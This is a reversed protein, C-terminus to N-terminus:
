PTAGMTRVAMPGRHNFDQKLIEDFIEDRRLKFFAAREDNQAFAEAECLSGFLYADPHNNFLWNLSGSAALDKKVYLISLSTDDVPRVLVNGAEITYNRPIGQDSTAYLTRLYSPHVYELDVSISGPWTVRKFGLFDSPLPGTGGSMAITGTAQTERVKLKRCAAAEFLTIFDDYNDVFLTNGLYDTMRDKLQDYTTIAM